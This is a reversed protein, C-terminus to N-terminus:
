SASLLRQLGVIPNPARTIPRGVVLLTAGDRLASRPSGVRTQDQADDGEPRIGPVVLWSQDGLAQRLAAVEQPSCVLGGAGADVAQKGLSVVQELAAELSTLVTVALLRMSGAERAAAGIMESGGSAHLTLLEAGLDRVAAVTLAVQHPIDHLKLDLFVRAGQGVLRRVVDPGERCFLSSGVKFWTVGMPVLQAVLESADLLTPVDLAVCIQSAALPQGNPSPTASPGPTM